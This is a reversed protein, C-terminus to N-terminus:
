PLRSDQTKLRSIRMPRPMQLSKFLGHLVRATEDYKTELLQAGSESLYGLRRALSIHYGVERTSGFAVNLFQSFEKQSERACGEVINAVISVAARRLQSTLGFREDSPFSRTVKYVTLVLEDALDFARLSRHDRGM